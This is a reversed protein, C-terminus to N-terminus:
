WLSLIQKKKIIIEATDQQTHLADATIIAGEIPLEKLMKQAVPIENTKSSVQEQAIIKGEKHVVAALLQIGKDTGFGSGNLVKGDLAIFQGSLTKNKRMWTIILKDIKKPDLIRITKQIISMSPIKNKVGFLTLEDRSLSKIWDIVAPYSNCGCLIAAFTLSLLTVLSHRKGKNSRPDELQSFLQLLGSNGDITLNRLTVSM